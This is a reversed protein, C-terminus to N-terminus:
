RSARPRGSPQIATNSSSMDFGHSSFSYQRSMSKLPLTSCITPSQATDKTLVHSIRQPCVGNTRFSRPSIGYHRKFTARFSASDNFGCRMAIDTVTLGTHSLHRKAEKIRLDLIATLISQGFAERFRLSALRRSVRLHAVVDRTTIGHLANDRVFAM